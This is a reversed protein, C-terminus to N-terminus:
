EAVRVRAPRLVEDDWRYGHQLTEAVKGTPIAESAVTGLAEHARPDFDEGVSDFRAIGQAALLGLLKRHLAQVGAAIAPPADDLHELARDFDDLVELLPLIVERKGRRVASGQEREMRRRYNEFDALARLVADHERRLEERLREVEGPRAEEDKQEEPAKM